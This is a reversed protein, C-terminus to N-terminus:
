CGMTMWKELLFSTLVPLKVLSVVLGMCPKAAVKHQPGRHGHFAPPPFLLHNRPSKGMLDSFGQHIQHTRFIHRKYIQISDM